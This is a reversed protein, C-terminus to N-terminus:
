AVTYAGSMWAFLLVITKAVQGRVGAIAFGLAELGYFLPPYTAPAIVPYRAYYRVAFDVPDRPGMAILDSVFLGNMAHRPSDGQFWLGDGRWHRAAVFALALTMAALQYSIPSASRRAGT